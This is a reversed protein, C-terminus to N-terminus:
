LYQDFTHAVIQDEVRGDFIPQFPVHTVVVIISRLRIAEGALVGAEKPLAPPQNEGVPEDYRKHWSGGGIFMLAQGANPDQHVQPPKVVFLRHKWPIGRWTQSTLQLAVYECGGFQSQQRKVWAYSDDPATVYAGLAEHPDPAELTVVDIYEVMFGGTIAAVMTWM